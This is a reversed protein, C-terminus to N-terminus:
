EYHLAAIIDLRAAQRAPITSALVGFVLGVGIAALIGAAPFSYPMVIGVMSIASVIAYGLWIGALIGFGTGAASLLLSEALIMRRVQPRTGGVARIMGIERTREIVNIALTNILAILSPLTLALLMLYFFGMAGNLTNLMMDRWETFAFLTFSPYEKVIKELALRVQVGIAEPSKRVLMMVDNTQHFDQALNAQSIYGTGIKANLIDTGIGVVQYDQTGGATALPLMDSVKVNNKAAFVGNIVIARSAGMEAYAHAEDGATFQLGSVIPFTAPDIGIVQLPLGNVESSGLRLTTIDSVGPTQRIQQALQPTAGINGSQLFLSPPMLMFDANLTKDLMSGLLGNSLSSLLGLLAVIIALSIMMTSATVAARGPQRTLNGQAIQGERAFIVGLLRGFISAIPRILAPAILILGVIFLVAGAATLQNNKILLTIVAVGILGLGGIERRNLTRPQVAAVTPRLAEIPTVRGAMIAPYLGALVTIGVGLGISLIFAWPTFIPGGIQFRLLQQFVTGVGSLFILVLGYGAILGLATGIVGQLLSETLIVGIVTGRTAGVARLMGLDRRREAVITRFTNFIIFGGMLIALLGFMDIAIEGLQFNSLLENGAQLGGLKFANGLQAQVDAEVHERDVGAALVAEITNIQEPQNLLQQAASLPMYVAEVGPLPSTVIIGVIEFQTTGSTSPLTFKDGVTLGAQLALHQPIVMVNGDGPQLFRGSVLQYPRVTPAADDLGTVTVSDTASGAPLTITQRLSGSAQAIGNIQRVTNLVQADFVNDGVGTVSLDVAGAAALMNERLAQSFAPLMGNLGFIIMVGFIIALTTLFTRLKRGRLYRAALMLQISM